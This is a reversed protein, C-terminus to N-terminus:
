FLGCKRNDQLYINYQFFSLAIITGEKELDQAINIATQGDNKVMSCDISAKRLERIMEDGRGRCGRLVALHLATNSNNNKAMLDARDDALLMRPVGYFGARAAQHLSTEGNINRSNPDSSAELLIEFADEAVHGLLSCAMHLPIRGFSDKSMPDAGRKLLLFAAQHLVTRGLSDRYDVKSEEDLLWEVMNVCKHPERRHRDGPYRYRLWPEQHGTTSNGGGTLLTRRCFYGELPNSRLTHGYELARFIPDGGSWSLFGGSAGKDRLLQVMKHGGFRLAWDVLTWGHCDRSELSAGKKILRGAIACNNDRVALHLPMDGNPDKVNPGGWTGTLARRSRQSGARALRDSFDSVKEHVMERFGEIPMPEQPNGNADLGDPNVGHKLLLGVRTTHDNELLASTVASVDKPLDTSKCRYSRAASHIPADGEDDIFNPDFGYDLLMHVADSSGNLTAIHLASTNVEDLSYLSVGYDLLFKIMQGENGEAAIHLPRMGSQVFEYELNVGYNLLLEVVEVHVFRVAGALTGQCNIQAAANFSTERTDASDTGIIAAADLFRQVTKSRGNEVAWYFEIKGLVKIAYVYLQRNLMAYCRHNTQALGNVDALRKLHDAIALLLENPLRSLAMMIHFAGSRATLIPCIHIGGEDIIDVNSQTPRTPGEM